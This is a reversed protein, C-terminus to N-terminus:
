ADGDPGGGARRAARAERNEALKARTASQAAERADKADLAAEMVGDAWDIARVAAYVLAAHEYQAAHMADPYDRGNPQARQLADQLAHAAAYVLDADRYLTDPDTGSLSITPKIM